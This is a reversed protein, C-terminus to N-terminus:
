APPAARTARDGGDKRLQRARVTVDCENLDVHVLVPSRCLLHARRWLNVREPTRTCPSNRAPRPADHAPKDRIPASSRGQSGEACEAGFGPERMVCRRRHWAGRVGGRWQKSRMADCVVDQWKGRASRGDRQLRLDACHRRELAPRAALEDALEAPRLALQELREYGGDLDSRSQGHAAGAIPRRPPPQVDHPLSEHVAVRAASEGPM